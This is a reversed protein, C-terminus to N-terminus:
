KKLVKKVDDEVTSVQANKSVCKGDKGVIFLSPLVQVGYYTALKGDLGGPQYLHVGPAPNKQLFAKAEAASNDLNVCLVGVAKGSADAVSKLKAFDSAAQGNWSAWYYVVVVKGRMQDIDFPTGHDNLLPGALRFPKGELGLRRNAGAAKAAQPKSAFEKALRGYWNKAEVDKGLFECVMGLQLMADPTDDAKPYDRVFGTLKELWEQQVKSFDKPSNGLKASYDAQMGRFVIYAALSSGPLAKVIQKELLALRKFAPGDKDTGAQAATSLSDALQRIFPDRESAKAANVIQELIDARRLHHRVAAPGTLGAGDKDLETLAKILKELKPDQTLEMQRPSGEVSDEVAAGLRPADTLRWAAGVQVLPGIQLWENAGGAEFLVTARNHRVLDATSGALDAPTTQPAGTELHRWVAKASLKPMKAVVADFGAKVGARKERLAGAQEASIGLTRMDDDTILLAQLRALDRTALARLVEQSVEEPSIVKWTDITGNRDVDVGWKSGAANLWRFQDPKHSGTTDIQRHVEVGNKYYSWTDIDRGNTSYFKRLLKGSADKLVWGSGKGGTILEVKCGAQEAAAPTTIAVEQQPAYELMKSVPPAAWAPVAASGLALCGGLFLRAAVRKWTHPGRRDATSATAM